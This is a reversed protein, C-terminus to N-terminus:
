QLIGQNIIKAGGPEDNRGGKPGSGRYKNGASVFFSSKNWAM